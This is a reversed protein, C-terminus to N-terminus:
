LHFIHSCNITNSTQSKTVFLSLSINHSIKCHLRLSKITGWTAYWLPWNLLFLQLFFWVWKQNDILLAMDSHIAFLNSGHSFGYNQNVTCSQRHTPLLCMLSLGSYMNHKKNGKCPLCKCDSLDTFLSLECSSTPPPKRATPTHFVIFQRMLGLNKM